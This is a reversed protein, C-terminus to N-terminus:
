HSVMVDTLAGLQPVSETGATGSKRSLQFHRYIDVRFKLVKVLLLKIDEKSFSELFNETFPKKTVDHKAM